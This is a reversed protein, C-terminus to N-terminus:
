EIGEFLEELTLGLGHAIRELTDLTPSRRGLEVESLYTKDAGISLAFQRLSIGAAERLSRIRSGVQHRVDNGM